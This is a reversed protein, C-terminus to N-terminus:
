NGNGNKKKLNKKNVDKKEKNFFFLYIIETIAFTNLVLLVIFWKKHNNKTARWLAVGKWPLSWALLLTLLLQNETFIDEM